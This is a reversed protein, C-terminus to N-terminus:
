RAEVNNGCLQFDYFRITAIAPTTLRDSEGVQEILEAQIKIKLCSTTLNELFYAGDDSSTYFSIYNAIDTTVEPEYVSLLGDVTSYQTTSAIIGVYEKENIQVRYRVDCYEIQVRHDNYNILIMSSECNCNGEIRQVWVFPTGTKLCDEIAMYTLNSPDYGLKARINSSTIKVPKDFRGRKFVGTFIANSLTDRPDTESKDQVGQYQIGTQEQLVKTVTM